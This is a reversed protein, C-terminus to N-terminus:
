VLDTISGKILHEIESKLNEIQIESQEIEHNLSAVIMSTSSHVGEVIQKSDKIRKQIVWDAILRNYYVETFNGFDHFHYSRRIEKHNHIDQLEKEFREFLLQAIYVNAMAKDMFLNKAKAELKRSFDMADWSGWDSARNLNRMIVSLVELIEEGVFKAEELEKRNGSIKSINKEIAIIQDSLTPHAALIDARHTVIAKELQQDIHGETNVQEKLVGEEFQLLEVSKRAEHYQLVVQLYEQRRMELQAEKNGLVTKFINKLSKLELSEMTEYNENLLQALRDVVSRAQSLRRQVDQLHSKALRITRQTEVLQVIESLNSM